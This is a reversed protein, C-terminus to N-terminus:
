RKERKVWKKVAWQLGLWGRLNFLPLGVRIMKELLPTLYCIRILIQYLERINAAAIYITDGSHDLKWRFALKRAMDPGDRFSIRAALNKMSRYPKTRGDAIAFSVAKGLAKRWSAKPFAAPGHQKDIPFFHLGPIALRAQRCATPCGSFFLPHIHYPALSAAFLEIEPLPRGNVELSAIRSTLTHALFGDTGSAAHMGLFIAASADPPKGFGPVPGSRYGSLLHLRQDLLSPILNYGTRHFDKVTVQKVGSKFLAGAAANVDLTMHYCAHAWEPTLFSAARYNWCGSSGEIDAVILVHEPPAQRMAALIRIACVDSGHWSKPTDM